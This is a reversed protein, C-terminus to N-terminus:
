KKFSNHRRQPSCTIPLRYVCLDPVHAKWLNLSRAAGAGVPVLLLSSAPLNLLNVQLTLSGPFGGCMDEAWSTCYRRGM